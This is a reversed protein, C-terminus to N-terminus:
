GQSRVNRTMNRKQVIVKPFTSNKLEVNAEDGSLQRPFDMTRVCSCNAFLVTMHFFILSLM